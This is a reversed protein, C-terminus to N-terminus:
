RGATLWRMLGDDWARRGAEDWPLAEAGAIISQLKQSQGRNEFLRAGGGPSSLTETLFRALVAAAAPSLRALAFVPEVSAAPKANEKWWNRAALVANPDDLRKDAFLTREFLRRWGESGAEDVAASAERTEVETLSEGRAAKAFAELGRRAPSSEDHGLYAALLKPEGLALQYAPDFRPVAALRRGSLSSLFKLLGTTGGEDYAKRWAIIGESYKTDMYELFTRRARAMALLDKTDRPGLGLSPASTLLGDIFLRESTMAFGESMASFASEPSYQEDRRVVSDFLVHFYEHAFAILHEIKQQVSMRALGTVSPDAALVDPGIQDSRVLEIKQMFYKKPLGAESPVEGRSDPSVQAIQILHGTEPSWSQGNSPVESTDFVTTVPVRHYISPLLRAILSRATTEVAPLGPSLPGRAYRASVDNWASAEPPLKGDFSSDLSRARNESPENPASAEREPALSAALRSLEDNSPLTEAAAEAETLARAAPIIMPGPAVIAPADPIIIGAPARLTSIQATPSLIVLAGSQGIPAGPVIIRPVERAAAEVIQAQARLAAAPLLLVIFLRKM